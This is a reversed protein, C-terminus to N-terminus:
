SSHKALKENKSILERASSILKFISKMMLVTDVGKIPKIELKENQNVKNSYNSRCSFATTRFTELSWM